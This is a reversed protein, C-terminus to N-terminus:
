YRPSSGGRAIRAARGLLDHFREEKPMLWKVSSDLKLRLGGSPKTIVFQQHEHSPGPDYWLFFRGKVPVISTSYLYIPYPNSRIVV